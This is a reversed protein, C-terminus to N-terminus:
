EVEFTWEAHVPSGDAALGEVVTRFRGPYSPTHVRIMKSEGAELRLSPDWYLLQREDPGDGQPVSGLYAVPYSVGKFDLVRVNSPFTLATVYNKKTM